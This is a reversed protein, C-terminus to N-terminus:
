TSTYCKILSNSLYKCIIIPMRATSKWVQINIISSLVNQIENRENLTSTLQTNWNYIKLYM